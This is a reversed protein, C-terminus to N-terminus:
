ETRGEVWSAFTSFFPFERCEFRLAKRNESLSMSFALVHSYLMMMMVVLGRLIRSYDRANTKDDRM